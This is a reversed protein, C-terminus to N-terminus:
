GQDKKPRQLSTGGNEWYWGLDPPKPPANFPGLWLMNHFGVDTIEVMGVPDNIPRKAILVGRDTRRVLVAQVEGWLPRVGEPQWVWYLGPLTPRAQTWTAAKCAEIAKATAERQDQRTMLTNAM